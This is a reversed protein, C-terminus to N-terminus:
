KPTGRAAADLRAEIAARGMFGETRSGDAWILTPTGSIALERATELNRMVPNPCADSALRTQDDELMFGRWAAARDAACWISAPLAEGKFPVLFTHITVDDISALEAELQRCYPCAPDSFVALPRKGNGRVTRIADGFPLQAFVIPGPTRAASMRAAIGLVTLDTMTLTDFVHGFLFYRPARAWVYAINEDMWVEYFGDIPSALIETFRTNPHMRELEARLRETQPIPKRPADAHASALWGGALLALLIPAARRTRHETTSTM